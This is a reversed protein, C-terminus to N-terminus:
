KITETKFKDMLISLDKCKYYYDEMEKMKSILMNRAEEEDNSLFEMYVNLDCLIGSTIKTLEKYKYSLEVESRCHHVTWGFIGSRIKVEVSYKFVNDSKNKIENLDLLSMEYYYYGGYDKGKNM